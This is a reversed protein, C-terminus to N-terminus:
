DDAGGSNAIHGDEIVIAGPRGSEVTEVWIQFDHKDALEALHAMANRDLLSGDRIRAVRLEPNLAMAISVSIQRQAADSMQELPLGDLTVGNDTFALGAVPLPSDKIAQERQEKRAAMAQTLRESEEEHKIAIQLLEAKRKKARVAANTEEIKAFQEMLPATDIPEGIEIADAADAQREADERLQQALADLRDAEKRLSEAEAQAKGADAYLGRAINEAHRKEGKRLDIGANHEQADKLQGAINGATLFEDPTGPPAFLSQAETRAANARRNVETRATYDERDAADLALWDVGTILGRLMKAQEDPKMRCFAMPDFSLEGILADIVAQPKALVQGDAAEVVLQSAYAAGSKPRSFKRTVLLRVDDGDGLHLRVVASKAGRRIPEDQIHKANSLAWFISDLVSTKGNGNRGTIEVLNGSPTIEVATLRKINESELKLIKM